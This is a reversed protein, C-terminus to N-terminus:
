PLDLLVGVYSQLANARVRADRVKAGFAIIRAAIEGETESASVQFRQTHLITNPATHDVYEAVVMLEGTLSLDTTTTEGSEPDTTQVTHTVSKVRAKLAM